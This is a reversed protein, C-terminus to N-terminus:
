LIYKWISRDMGLATRLKSVFDQPSDAWPPLEVDGVKRGDKM